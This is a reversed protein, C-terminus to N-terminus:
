GGEGEGISLSRHQMGGILKITAVDFENQM